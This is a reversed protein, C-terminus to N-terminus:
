FFRKKRAPGFGRVLDSGSRLMDCDLIKKQTKIDKSLKSMETSSRSMPWIEAERVDSNASNRFYARKRAAPLAPSEIAPTEFMKRFKKSM